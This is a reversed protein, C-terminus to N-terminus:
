NQKCWLSRSRSLFKSSFFFRVLTKVRKVANWESGAKLSLPFPTTASKTYWKQRNNNNNFSQQHPQHSSKQWCDFNHSIWFSCAVVASWGVGSLLVSRTHSWIIWELKEMPRSTSPSSANTPLPLRWLLGLLCRKPILLILAMTGQLLQLFPTLM